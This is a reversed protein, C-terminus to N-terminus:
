VRMPMQVIRLSDDASTIVAPEGALKGSVSFTVTDGRLVSLASILYDINYGAEFPAATSDALAIIESSDREGDKVTLTLNQEVGTLKVAQHRHRHFARMRALARLIMERDVSFVPKADKPIVRFIDPFTGDILKASLSMGAFEFRVRNHERDFVCTDPERRQQCLYAVLNKPIIAGTSGDPAAGIPMIALRHGDTAVVIAKGVGDVLIAVGNLYYRTEETSVCHRVRNLAAVLGLNSTASCTGEVAGFEPFDSVPLSAMRYASGNFTVSALAADDGITLEEDKDVAGALSQLSGWDIVAAGVMSGISPMSVSVEMDLDTGTLKGDKFRVMGLVPIPYNQVIVGRFLRLGGALQGATTQMKM